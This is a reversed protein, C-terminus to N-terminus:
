RSALPPAPCSTSTGPTYRTGLAETGCANCSGSLMKVRCNTAFPRARVSASPRSTLANSAMSGSATAARRRPATTRQVQALCPLRRFFLPTRRTVHRPQVPLRHHVDAEAAALGQGRVLDPLDSSSEFRSAVPEQPHHLAGGTGAWPVRRRAPRRRPCGRGQHRTAAESSILPEPLRRPKHGSWSTFSPSPNGHRPGSLFFVSLTTLVCCL